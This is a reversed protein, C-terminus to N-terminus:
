SVVHVAASILVLLVVLVGACGGGASAIGNERELADVAKKAEALGTGTKERYLKVAAIKNGDRLHSVVDQEDASSLSAPMAPTEGRAIAEVADKAEKLGTDTRERYLKIAEIKQGRAILDRMVDDVVGGAARALEAGCRACCQSGAPNEHDCSPCSSM